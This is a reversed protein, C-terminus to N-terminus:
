KRESEYRGTVPYLTIVYEHNSGDAIRIKTCNVNVTVHDQERTVYAFTYLTRGDSSTSEYIDSIMGQFAGSGRSFSLILPGKNKLEYEVGASTEDTTYFIRVHKGLVEDTGYSTTLVYAGAGSDYALKMWGNAKALTNTRTEGLATTITEGAQRTQWDTKSYFMTGTITALVALIAAVAIVEVLSFGADRKM